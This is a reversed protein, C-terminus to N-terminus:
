TDSEGFVSRHPNDAMSCGSRHGNIRDWGAFFKALSDFGEARAEAKSIDQIREPRTSIVAHKLAPRQMWDCMHISPHWRGRTVTSPFGRLGDARYWIPCFAPIERPPLHNYKEEAAWTECFHIEDGPQIIPTIRHMADSGDIRAYTAGDQIFACELNLRSWNKKSCTQGDIEVISNRATVLRRTQTKRGDLDARVSEPKYLLRHTKM